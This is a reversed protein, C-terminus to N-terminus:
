ILVSNTSSDTDTDGDADSDTSLILIRKGCSHDGERKTSSDGTFGCGKAGFM